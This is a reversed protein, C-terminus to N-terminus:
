NQQIMFDYSFLSARLVPDKILHQMLEQNFNFYQMPLPNFCYYQNAFQNFYHLPPWLQMPNLYM